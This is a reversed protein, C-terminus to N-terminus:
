ADEPLDAGAAAPGYLQRITEGASQRRLEELRGVLREIDEDSLLDVDDLAAVAFPEVEDHEFFSVYADLGTRRAAALGEEHLALSVEHSMPVCPGDDSFEFDGLYFLLRLDSKEIEVGARQAILERHRVVLAAKHSLGPNLRPGGSLMAELPARLDASLGVIRLIAGTHGGGRAYKVYDVGGDVANEIERMGTLATSFTKVLGPVDDLDVLTLEDGILARRLRFSATYEDLRRLTWICRVETITQALSLTRLVAEIRSEALWDTVVESSLIVSRDRHERLYSTFHRVPEDTVNSARLVETLGHHTPSFRHGWWEEPYIVGSEALRGRHAALASQLSTTGTRKLGLHWYLM